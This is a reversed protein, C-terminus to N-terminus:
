PKATPRAGPLPGLGALFDTLIAKSAAPDSAADGETSVAVLAGVHAGGQLAARAQWLKAELTSATAQGDVVYFWWVVRHRSARVLAVTNVERTAGGFAAATHGIEAVRWDKPDAIANVTRTLPSGRAPLQYLAVFQSVAAQGDRYSEISVRSAAQVLPRWGPAAQPERTWGSGRLNPTPVAVQLPAAAAREIEVLFLPGLMALALGAAMTTGVRGRAAAPSVVFRVAVPGADDSFSMGILILLLTVLSFFIWGYLIHDAMAAAANGELHALVLLMLARLGNALIPVSVSLAIFLARRLPSRYVVAAFFVGFVVSAILFRLGACAEAVEFSGEPIQIILGDAFVPIDFLRLGAVTIAATIRQLSPVLFAGFPVLFFLFLLPAMLARFTRWGLVAVLLTEFLALVVLQEAELVDLLAAAAWLASLAPVLALAWPSPNPRLAAVVERRNWLLVGALPLVLFCHHYATSDLWVRVAGAMERRFVLGLVAGAVAISALAPLWARLPSEAPAGNSLLRPTEVSM